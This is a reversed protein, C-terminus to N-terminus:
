EFNVGPHRQLDETKQGTMAHFLALYIMFMGVFLFGMPLALNFLPSDIVASSPNEPHYRVPMRDGKEPTFAWHFLITTQFEHRHGKKDEFAVFPRTGAQRGKFATTVVGRAEESVRHFSTYRWLKTGVPLVICLGLILVFARPFFATPGFVPHKAM